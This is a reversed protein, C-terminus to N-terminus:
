ANPTKLRLKAIFEEARDREPDFVGALLLGIEDREIAPETLLQRAIARLVGQHEVLINGVERWGDAMPANSELNLKATIGGALLEFLTQQEVSSSLTAHTCLIEATLGAIIVAAFRWDNEPSTARTANDPPAYDEDFSLCGIWGGTEHQGVGVRTVVFGLATGVVCRGAQHYAVRERTKNKPDLGDHARVSALRRHFCDTAQRQTRPLIEFGAIRTVVGDSIHLSEEGTVAAPRRIRRRKANGM